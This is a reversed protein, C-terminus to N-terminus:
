VGYRVHLRQLKDGIPKGLWWLFLANGVAYLVMHPLATGVAVFYYSPDFYGRYWLVSWVDMIMSFLVGSAVGYAILAVRSKKLPTALFGAILGVIGWALMQFPTWPGQGFYFNSILASLCGVLFGAEGGLYLATLITIAAIPKIVPIFRGVVSLATLIAVVVMRRSGTQKREFGSWFLLLALVTVGLSVLLHRREDFVLTGLVALAPILVFPVAVLIFGKLGGPKTETM